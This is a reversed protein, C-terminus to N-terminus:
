TEVCSAIRAIVRAFFAIVIVLLWFGTRALLKM